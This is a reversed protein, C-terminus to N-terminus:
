PLATKSFAGKFSGGAEDRGQEFATAGDVKVARSVVDITVQKDKTAPEAKIPEEAKRSAWNRQKNFETLARKLKARTGDTLQASKNPVRDLFSRSADETRFELFGVNMMKRRNQPGSFFNDAFVVRSDPVSAAIAELERIRADADMSDPLGVVAVRRLAPDFRSYSLGRKSENSGRAELVDLRSRVDAMEEKVPDVACAIAMKVGQEMESWMSKLGDKTAASVVLADITNSLAHIATLVAGDDEFGLRRAAGSGRPSQAREEKVRGGMVPQGASGWEDDMEQLPSSGVRRSKADPTAHSGQSPAESAPKVHYLVTGDSAKVGMYGKEWDNKLDVNSAHRRAEGATGASKYLEYRERADSGKRKKNEAQFVVEVDDTLPWNMEVGAAAM